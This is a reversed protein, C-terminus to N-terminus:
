NVYRPKVIRVDTLEFEGFLLEIKDYKDNKFIYVGRDEPIEEAWGYYEIEVFEVYKGKKCESCDNTIVRVIDGKELDLM